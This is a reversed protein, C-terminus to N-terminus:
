QICDILVLLMSSIADHIPLLRAFIGGCNFAYKFLCASLYLLSLNVVNVLSFMLYTDLAQLELLELAVLLTADSFGFRHLLNGRATVM